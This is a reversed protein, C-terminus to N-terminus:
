EAEAHINLSCLCRPHATPADHGSVFDQDMPIIGQAANTLCIVCPSADTDWSKGRAGSTGGFHLLSQNYADNLETQAIMRARSANFDSFEGRIARIIGDFDKGAEYADAIAGALRKVTTQDIDGSLQSFGADKLYEAMFSEGGPVENATPFHTTVGSRGATLAQIIASQYVLSDVHTVPQSVIETAIAASIEDVLRQHRDDASEKLDRMLQISSALLQRKIPSLVAAKQARFRARFIRMIARIAKKLSQDRHIQLVPLKSSEIVLALDNCVQLFQETVTV